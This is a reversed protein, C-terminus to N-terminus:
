ALELVGDPRLTGPLMLDLTLVHSRHNRVLELASLGAAAEDVVEFDPEAEPLLRLSARVLDHDEALGIPITAPTM